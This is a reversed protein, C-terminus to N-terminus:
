YIVIATNVRDTVMQSIDVTLMHMVKVRVKLINARDTLYLYALADGQEGDKSHVLTLRLYALRFAM